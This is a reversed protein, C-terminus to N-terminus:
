ALQLGMKKKLEINILKEKKQQAHQSKIGNIGGGWRRRVESNDNFMARYIKCQAELEAQDEKRVNDIALVPCNKQHVLQGLRSKGKVICYPVEKKRCLQPIFCVLEVPTVDHAIVVLKAKRIEILDTVHNIGYKIMVPKKGGAAGGASQREAEQLLRQKKEARTEPKYKALLRMLQSTQNKDLTHTFQNIAPPVKLRQMLVRRQRQLLIYKPWKVFRSLDRRPQINGGVRFSRPTKAFIPSKQVKKGSKGALPAAPLKKKGGSSGKAAASGKKMSAM